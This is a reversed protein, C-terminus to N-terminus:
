NMRDTLTPDKGIKEIDEEIQDQLVPLIKVEETLEMVTKLYKEM